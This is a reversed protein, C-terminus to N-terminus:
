YSGPPKDWKQHKHWHRNNEVDSVGGGIILGIVTWILWAWFFATWFRRLARSRVVHDPPQVWEGHAVPGQEPHASQTPHQQLQRQPPMAQPQPKNTSHGDNALLLHKQHGPM